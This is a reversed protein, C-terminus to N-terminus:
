LLNYESLDGHVLKCEQWLKRMMKVLEYYCEGYQDANLRADKLRPAAHGNKGLFTMLLVHSRLMLAEPCRIGAAAIRKLNRLEKEAWMAKRVVQVGGLLGLGLGLGVPIIEKSVDHGKASTKM